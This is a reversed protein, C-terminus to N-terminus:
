VKLVQNSTKFGKKRMVTKAILDYMQKKRNWVLVFPSNIHSNIDTIVAQAKDGLKPIKEGHKQEAKGFMSFLEDYTIQKKNRMDNVRDLFHRTFEFDINDRAYLADLYREMKNLDDQTLQQEQELLLESIKM